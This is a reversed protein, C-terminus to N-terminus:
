FKVIERYPQYLAGISPALYGCVNCPEVVEVIDGLENRTLIYRVGNVTKCKPCTIRRPRM